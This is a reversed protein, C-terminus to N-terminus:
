LHPSFFLGLDFCRPLHYLKIQLLTQCRWGSFITFFASRHRSSGSSILSACWRRLVSEPLEPFKNPTPTLTQSGTICIAEDSMFPESRRSPSRSLVKETCTIANVHRRFIFGDCSQTSFCGWFNNREDNVGDGQQSLCFFFLGFCLPMATIEPHTVTARFILFKSLLDDFESTKKKWGPFRQM